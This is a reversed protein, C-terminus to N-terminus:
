VKEFPLPKRTQWEGRTFDPFDMARSKNTVSEETLKTIISWTAADYVDIPVATRNRLAMVLDRLILYDGGGHGTKIAVDGFKKWLPHDYQEEYKDIDEWQHSRPSKDELFIKNLTGSYIGETGQIRWIFDIPRPSLSDYYLTVTIGRATQILTCNVDGAKYDKKAAPHDPGLIKTAYHKLGLSRSSM